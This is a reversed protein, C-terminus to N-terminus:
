DMHLLETGQKNPAEVKAINMQKEKLIIWTMESNWSRMGLTSHIDEDEWQYQLRVEKLPRWYGGDLRPNKSWLLDGEKIALMSTMGPMCAFRPGLLSLTM